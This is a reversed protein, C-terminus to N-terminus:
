KVQREIVDKAKKPWESEKFLQNKFVVELLGSISKGYKPKANQLFKKVDIVPDKKSAGSGSGSSGSGNGTGAGPGAGSGSANNNNKSIDLNENSQAM